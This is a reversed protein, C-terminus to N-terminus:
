FAYGVCLGMFRISFMPLGSVTMSASNSTTQVSSSAGIASFSKFNNSAAQQVQGQDYASLNASPDTWSYTYKAKGYGAGIIWWDISFHKAIIWQRGIMLGGNVGGYTQKAEASYNQYTVTQTLNYKAYRLYVAIYFGNPAPKDSKGRPYFRFEPTIAFGGYTPSTFNSSYSSSNKNDYVSGPLARQLLYSVGLAVSMKKHFGYEGQFSLNKLLLQTLNMKIAINSAGESNAMSKRKSSVPAALDLVKKEKEKKPFLPNEAFVNAAFILSAAFLTYKIKM